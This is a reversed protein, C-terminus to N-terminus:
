ESASKESSEDSEESTPDGPGDQQPEGAAAPDRDEAADGSENGDEDAPEAEDDDQEEDKDVPKKKPKKMVQSGFASSIDERVRQLQEVLDHYAKRGGPLDSRLGLALVPQLYMLAQNLLYSREIASVFLGTERDEATTATFLKDLAKRQPPSLGAMVRDLDGRDIVAQIAPTLQEDSREIDGQEFITRMTETVAEFETLQRKDIHGQAADVTSERELDDLDDGMRARDIIHDKDIAVAGLIARGRAWAHM